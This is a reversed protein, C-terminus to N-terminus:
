HSESNIPKQFQEDDPIRFVLFCLIESVPDIVPNLNSKELSGLLTPSERGRSSSTFLDLKWFTTNELIEFEPCCVFHLSETIRLTTYWWWFGKFEVNILPKNYHFLISHSYNSSLSLIELFTKFMSVCLFCGLFVLILGLCHKTGVGVAWSLFRTFKYSVVSIVTPLM